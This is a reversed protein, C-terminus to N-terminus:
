STKRLNRQKHFSLSDFIKRTGPQSEEGSLTQISGGRLCTKNNYVIFLFPKLLTDNDLKLEVVKRPM